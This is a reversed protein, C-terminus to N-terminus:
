RGAGQLRHLVINALLALLLLILGLALALGFNGKRTELVIATTLVRTEGAINGGVLIVAGVEAIIRGFAAIIAAVIGLRAERVLTLALQWRTAGLSTLQISLQDDVSRIATLSLGIVLPWAIVAQALIMARPTFLWQLNGLVGQNSLLIFVLLGAVVPPLGMGTNILPALCGLKSDKSRLGLFVGIPLGLLVAILLASGTVRLTLGIIEFLVADRSIILRWAEQLATVLIEM